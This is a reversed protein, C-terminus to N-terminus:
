TGCIPLPTTPGLGGCPDGWGTDAVVTRSRGASSEAHTGALVGLLALGVMGLLAIKRM